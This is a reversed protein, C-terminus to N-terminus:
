EIPEAFRRFVETSWQVQWTNGDVTDLLIFNYMNQTKYLEFRGPIIADPYHTGKRKDKHNLVTKFRYKSTDNEVTYQVQWLMGTVTDLEIFTWMNDTPYLKYYPKTSAVQISETNEILTALLKTHLSDVQSPTLNRFKYTITGVVTNFTEDTEIFDTSRAAKECYYLQEENTVTTATSDISVKVVIGYGNVSVNFKVIGAESYSLPLSETSVRIGPVSYDAQVDIMGQANALQLAFLLSFIFVILRRM